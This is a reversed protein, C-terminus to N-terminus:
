RKRTIKKKRRPAAEDSRKLSTVRAGKPLRRKFLQGSVYRLASDDNQAHVLTAHAKGRHVFAVRYPLREPNRKRKRRLRAPLKEGPHEARFAKRAESYAIAEAQDAPKGHEREIEINRGMAARSYGRELPNMREGYQIAVSPLTELLAYFQEQSLGAAAALSELLGIDDWSTHKQEQVRRVAEHLMDEALSM